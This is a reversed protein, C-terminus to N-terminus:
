AAAGGFAVAGGTRGLSPNPALRVRSRRPRGRGVAAPAARASWELLLGDLIHPGGEDLHLETERLRWPEVGFAPHQIVLGGSGQTLTAVMIDVGHPGLM